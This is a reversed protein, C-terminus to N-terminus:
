GINQMREEGNWEDEDEHDDAEDEDDGEGMFEHEDTEADEDEDEGDGANDEDYPTGGEALLSEYHSDRRTAQLSIRHALGPVLMTEDDLDSYHGSMWKDGM